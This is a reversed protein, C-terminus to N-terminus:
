PHPQLMDWLHLLMEPKTPASGHMPQTLDSSIGLGETPGPQGLWNCLCLLLSALAAGRGLARCFTYIWPIEPGTQTLLRILYVADWHVKSSPIM